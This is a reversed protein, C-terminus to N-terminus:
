NRMCLHAPAQATSNRQIIEMLFQEYRLHHVKTKSHNM